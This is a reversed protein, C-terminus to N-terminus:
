NQTWKRNGFVRGLKNAVDSYGAPQRISQLATTKVHIHKAANPENHKIQKRRPTFRGLRRSNGSRETLPDCNLTSCGRRLALGTRDTYLEVGAFNLKKWATVFSQISKTYCYICTICCVCTSVDAFRTNSKTINEHEFEQWAWVVKPSMKLCMCQFNQCKGNDPWLSVSSCQIKCRMPPNVILFHGQICGGRINFPTFGPLGKFCFINQVKQTDAGVLADVYVVFGLGLECHVRWM